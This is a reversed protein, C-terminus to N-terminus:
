FYYKSLDSAETSDLIHLKGADHEYDLIREFDLHNHKLGDPLPLTNYYKRTEKFQDFGDKHFIMNNSILFRKYDIVAHIINLIESSMIIKDM